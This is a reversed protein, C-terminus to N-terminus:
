QMDHGWPGHIPTRLHPSPTSLAIQISSGGVTLSLHSFPDSTRIHLFIKLFRSPLPLHESPSLKFERRSHVVWRRGNSRSIRFTSADYSPVRSAVIQLDLGNCSVFCRFRSRTCHACATFHFHVSFRNTALTSYQRM